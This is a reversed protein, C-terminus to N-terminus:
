RRGNVSAVHEARHKGFRPADRPELNEFMSTNGSHWLTDETGNWEWSADALYTVPTGHLFQHAAIASLFGLHAAVRPGALRVETGIGVPM